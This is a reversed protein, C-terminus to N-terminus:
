RLRRRLQQLQGLCAELLAILCDCSQRAVLLNPTAQGESAVITADELVGTVEAFATRATEVRTAETMAAHAM